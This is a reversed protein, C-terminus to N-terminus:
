SSFPPVKGEGVQRRRHLRPGAGDPAAQSTSVPQRLVMGAFPVSFPWAAVLLLGARRRRRRRPLALRFVCCDEPAVMAVEFVAM